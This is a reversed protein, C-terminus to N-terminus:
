GESAVPLPAADAESVPPPPREAAPVSTGELVVAVGRAGTEEAPATASPSAPVSAPMATPIAPQSSAYRHRHKEPRPGDASEIEGM